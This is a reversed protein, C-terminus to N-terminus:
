LPTGAVRKVEEVYRIMSPSLLGRMQLMMEAGNLLDRLRARAEELLEQENMPEEVDQYWQGDRLYCDGGNFDKPNPVTYTKV